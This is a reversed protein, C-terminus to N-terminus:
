SALYSVGTLQVSMEWLKSAVGEDRVQNTIV